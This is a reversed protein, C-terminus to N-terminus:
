LAYFEELGYMVKTMCVCYVSMMLCFAFMQEIGLFQARDGAEISLDPAVEVIRAQRELGANV